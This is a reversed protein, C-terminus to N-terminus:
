AEPARRFKLATGFPGKLKFKQLKPLTFMSAAVDFFDEGEISDGWEDDDDNYGHGPLNWSRDSTTICVSTLATLAGPAFLHLDIPDCSRLRIHQLPLSRLCELPAATRM